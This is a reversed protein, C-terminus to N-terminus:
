KLTHTSLCPLAMSAAPMVPFTPTHKTAQTYQQNHSVPQSTAAVCEPTATVIQTRHKINTAHLHTREALLEEIAAAGDKSNGQLM